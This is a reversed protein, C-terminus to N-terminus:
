IKYNLEIIKKINNKNELFAPALHPQERQRSTGFEVYPAYKTNTGVIVSESSNVQHTYSNRLNGTDVPCRLKTEGEVFLGIAELCKEQAQKIKKIVEDEYSKYKM